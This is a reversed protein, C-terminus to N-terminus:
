QLGLEQDRASLEDLIVNRLRQIEDIADRMARVETEDLEREDATDIIRQLREDINFSRPDDHPLITLREIEKKVCSLCWGDALHPCNMLHPMTM